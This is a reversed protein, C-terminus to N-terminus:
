KKEYLDGAMGFPQVKKIVVTVFKGILKKDGKGLIQVGKLTRTQGYLEGKKNQGMVLVEIVKNLYRQNNERATKRLVDNLEEERRKKESRSVNDKMEAAVTGFRPSYQSLYAMDFKLDKFLKISDLFQKRTEGPFGVIVDTSIAAPVGLRNDLARRFSKILQKYHEVTYKRNMVELIQNNGSQVALHLHECVKKSTAMAKILKESMDKPHSSFFRIWFDGPLANVKKLLQPFDVRGSRYSNVNQAILNIEKYGKKLLGRVESIIEASSRYAERGRAYPVVCYACFNNCGTGIPVFAMLASSYKPTISLYSKYNRYINKLKEEDAFHYSEPMPGPHPIRCASSLGAKPTRSGAPGCNNNKSSKIMESSIISDGTSHTSKNDKAWLVLNDGLPSKKNDLIKEMLQPLEVIPLWIDVKNKLRRKVDIRQSLCGTIILLAKRNDKRIQNVLGYLRDEPSQRVGCTAIAIVDATKANKALSYGYSELYASLRESDAKNMQCGIIIVHYTM